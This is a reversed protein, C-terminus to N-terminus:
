GYDRLVRQLVESLRVLDDAKVWERNSHASTLDGAGFVVCPIDHHVLLNGADTWSPMGAPEVSSGLAKGLQGVIPLDQPVEIAPSADSIEYMFAAGRTAWRRGLDDLRSRVEDLAADADVGPVLGLGIEAGAAAPRRWLHEGGEIRGVHLRPAPLLPHRASLFACTELSDIAALVASIPSGTAEPAYAHSPEASARVVLDIHGSQATCVRFLTPELVIGGDHAWPGDPLTLRESGVGGREEDCTIAILAPADPEAECAAVLAAIQGKADLVGRGVLNDGDRRYTFPDDHDHPPHVDVHSCILPGGDGRRAVLNPRGPFIEELEWTFGCAQLWSAILRQAEDEVEHTPIGVLGAVLEFIRDNVASM